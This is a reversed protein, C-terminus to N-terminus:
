GNDAPHSTFRTSSLGPNERIADFARDLTSLTVLRLAGVVNPGVDQVFAVQEPHPEEGHIAPSCVRYIQHIAGVLRQDIIGLEALERALGLGYRKRPPLELAQEHAIRALEHDIQYRVSFLFVVDQPAEISEPKPPQPTPLGHAALAEAVAAKVRQEIAPLDANPPPSLVHFQPAVQNSIGIVARLENRVSAVDSKIEAKVSEIQQKLTVGGVSVEVYIPALFLLAWITLLGFDVATAHGGVFAAIRYSLVITLSIVIALWWIIKFTNSFQM